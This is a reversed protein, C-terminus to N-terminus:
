HTVPSKRRFYKRAGEQDKLRGALRNAEIDMGGEWDQPRINGSGM